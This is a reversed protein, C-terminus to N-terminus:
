KLCNFGSAPFTRHRNHKLYRHNSFDNNYNIYHYTSPRWVAADIGHIEPTSLIQLIHGFLTLYAEERKFLISCAKDASSRTTTDTSIVLRPKVGQQSMSCIGDIAIWYFSWLPKFCLSLGKILDRLLATKVACFIPIHWFIGRCNRYQPFGYFLVCQIYLLRDNNTVM